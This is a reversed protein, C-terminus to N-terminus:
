IATEMLMNEIKNRAKTKPLAGNQLINSLLYILQTHFGNRKYCEATTFISEHNRCKLGVEGNILDLIKFKYATYLVQDWLDRDQRELLFRAQVEWWENKTTIDILQTDCSVEAAKKYAVVALDQRQRNECFRGLINKEYHQNTELFIKANQDLEV